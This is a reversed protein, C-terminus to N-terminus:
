HPSPSSASRMTFTFGNPSNALAVGVDNYPMPGDALMVNPFNMLGGDRWFAALWRPKAAFQFVFPFMAASTKSLMAATFALVAREADSFRDSSRWDALDRLQAEDVGHGLAMDWHAQWEFETRTLIVGRIPVERGGSSTFESLELTIQRTRTRENSIRVPVVRLEGLRTVRADSTELAALRELDSRLERDDPGDCLAVELQAM